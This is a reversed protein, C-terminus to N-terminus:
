RNRAGLRVKDQTARDDQLSPAAWSSTAHDQKGGLQRIIPLVAADIAEDDTILLCDARALEQGVLALRDPPMDLPRDLLGDAVDILPLTPAESLWQRLGSESLNEQRHHAYDKDQRDLGNVVFLDRLERRKLTKQWSQLLQRDTLM